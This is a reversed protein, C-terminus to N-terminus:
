RSRPRLRATLDRALAGIRELEGALRLSPGVVGLAALPHGAESIVPGAVGSVGEILEEDAIAFGVERGAALEAALWRPETRAGSTLPRASLSFASM